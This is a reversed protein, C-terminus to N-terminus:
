KLNMDPCSKSPPYTSPKRVDLFKVPDTGCGFYLYGKSFDLIRSSRDLTYIAVVRRQNVKIKFNEDVPYESLSLIGDTIHCVYLYEHLWCCAVELTGVNDRFRQSVQCVDVNWINIYGDLTCTALRTGDRSFSCWLVRTPLSSYSQVHKQPVTKLVVLKEVDIYFWLDDGIATIDIICHNEIDCFIEIFVDWAAVTTFHTCDIVRLFRSYLYFICDVENYIGRRIFQWMPNVELSKSPILVNNQQWLCRNCGESKTVGGRKKLKGVPLSRQDVRQFTISNWVCYAGDKGDVTTAIIFLGTDSFRCLYHHCVEACLVTLLCQRAVDWLKVTNSFGSTVFRNGSPSFACSDFTEKNGDFFSIEKKKVMDIATQLNGFLILSGDPAFTCCNIKMHGTSYEWLKILDPLGLVCIRGDGLAIAALKKNSSVGVASVRQPFFKALPSSVTTSTASVSIRIFSPPAKAILAEAIKKEDDTFLGEPSRYLVSELYSHLEGPGLKRFELCHWSIRVRLKRSLAVDSRLVQEFFRLLRSPVRPFVVIHYHTIVMDVLWFLSDTMNSDLLYEHGYDLAHLVDNTLKLPLWSSVNRKIEEFIKECLMWMRRQGDSVKVTYEHDDYGKALLWDYVSKHFVTVLDDSVYLLCSVAENVKNIIRKTERCDLDLDLARAIFALPLSEKTAVLLELLKYLVPKRKILIELEIELRHFYVHYVAGMGKPLFSMIERFRMSNLDERKCLEHQVHFAYLFSGECMAVIAPLVKLYSNNNHAIVSTNAADRAALSPLCVNLYELLDSENDKNSADIKITKGCSLRAISIEPRSTVLVKVHKPLGAFHDVILKVIDSKDDTASEDLGDIVILSPQLQLEDLPNQLYVQFADNLSKVKHPRKLQQVLKEKFGPLNESMHSALSQLMIIPDKLNSNSFDCFHCAALKGKERFIECIKAAFMSKGFGPGATILMFSSDDEDTFWNEVKQLLWDRTGPHFLKVKSRIKSSFNHKALDEVSNNHKEDFKSEDSDCEKHESQSQRSSSPCLQKKDQHIEETINATMQQMSRKFIDRDEQLQQQISKVDTGIDDLMNRCDEERLFWEKLSQVYIEEEPALSCTKLDDIERQPIKLDVLAQSVNKWLNEFTANDVQTSSVHAYVQNRFLKIRTVNAQPSRDTDVPMTNWGTAPPPLGCINRLLVTLLTVDFTKSDPPNGSPPFLLDWQHGNIVKIKLKLLSKRSANLVAPLNAPSHTADLTIRLAETGKDVLLRSLRTFNAKEELNVSVM